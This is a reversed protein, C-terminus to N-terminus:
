PSADPPRDARIPLKRKCAERHERYRDRDAPTAALDIAHTLAALADSWRGAEAYAAGLIHLSRGDACTSPPCAGEALNM